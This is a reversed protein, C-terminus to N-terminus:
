EVSTEAQLKTEIWDPSFGSKAEGDIVVVPVGAEGGTLRRMEAKTRLQDVPALRDVEIITAEIKNTELYKKLRACHPCWTASYVLVEPADPSSDPEEIEPGARDGDGDRTATTDGQVSVSGPAPDAPVGANAAHTAELNVGSEPLVHTRGTLDVFRVEGYASVPKSKAALRTGDELVVVYAPESSGAEANEGGGAPIATLGIGLGLIALVHRV